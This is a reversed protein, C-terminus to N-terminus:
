SQRAVRVGAARSGDAMARDSLLRPLEQGQLIADTSAARRARQHRQRDHRCLRLGQLAERTVSVPSPIPVASSLRLNSRMISCCLMRRGGYRRRDGRQTLRRIQHLVHQLDQRRPGVGIRDHTPSLQRRPLLHPVTHDGAFSNSSADFAGGGDRPQASRWDDEGHEILAATTPYDGSLPVIALKAARRGLASRQGSAFRALNVAM